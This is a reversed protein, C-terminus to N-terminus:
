GPTLCSQQGLLPCSRLLVARRYLPRMSGRGAQVESVDLSLYGITAHRYKLNYSRRLYPRPVVPGQGSELIQLVVAGCIAGMM